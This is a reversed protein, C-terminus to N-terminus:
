NQLTKISVRILLSFEHHSLGMSHRIERVDLPSYYFQRSVDQENRVIKGAEKVSSILENFMSPNM